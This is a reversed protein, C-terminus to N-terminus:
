DAPALILSQPNMQLVHEECSADSIKKFILQLTM